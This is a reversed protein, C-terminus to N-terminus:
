AHVPLDQGPSTTDQPGGGGNRSRDIIGHVASRSKDM